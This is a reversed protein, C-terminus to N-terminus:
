ALPIKVIFELGSYNEGEYSMMSNKSTITGKVYKEIIEKCMYLGIGTGHKEHKTTFYPEFIRQLINENVGKGSDTIKIVVNHEEKYVDLFVYRSKKDIKCLADISNNLINMFVQTLENKYNLIRIKEISDIITISETKLRSDILKITHALCDEIEFEIKQGKSMFYKRFDDITNSLYQANVNIIDFAEAELETIDIGHEQNMLMGTACTSIVSLPQRWQHAISELMEGMMAQKAKHMLLEEQQQKKEEDKKQKIQYNYKEVAIGTISATDEILHIDFVSPKKPRNYYIAFSGLVENTSSFIPQSWCAHLNARAALKKAYKWNEHTSIDEVVVRKKLFVASGCSGVKEGIEMGELKENYYQPLSPAAGCMLKQKTEDLLLVSCIINPNRAEVSKIIENLIFKISEGKAIYELLVKHDNYLDLYQKYSTIDRRTTVIRKSNTYQDRILEKKTKYYHIDNNIEIVEDYILPVNSLFSAMNKKDESTFNIKLFEEEKKQLVEDKSKNVSSLFADNAGLIEGELNTSIILVDLFDLSTISM